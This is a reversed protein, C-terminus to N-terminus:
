HRRIIEVPSISSIRIAPISASAMGIATSLLVVALSQLSDVELLHVNKLADQKSLTFQILFAVAWATSSGLLSGLFCIFAAHLVYIFQIQYDYAGLAKLIGIEKQHKLIYSTLTIVINFFCVLSSVGIILFFIVKIITLVIRVNDIDDLISRTEYGEKRIKARLDELEKLDHTVFDFRQYSNMSTGERYEDIKRFLNASVFLRSNPTKEVIGIVNCKFEKSNEGNKVQIQLNWNKYSSGLRSRLMNYTDLPVILGEQDSPSFHRGETIKLSELRVDDKEMSKENFFYSEAYVSLEISKIQEPIQKLTKSQNSSSAKLTVFDSLVPTIQRITKDGKLFVFNESTLRQDKQPFEVQINYLNVNKTIQEVATKEIGTALSLFIVIILVNIWVGLLNLFTFLKSDNIEHSIWVLYDKAKM